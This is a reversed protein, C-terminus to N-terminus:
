AMSQTSTSAGELVPLTQSGPDGRGLSQWVSVPNWAVLIRQRRLCSLVQHCSQVPPCSQALAAEVPLPLFPWPHQCLSFETAVLYEGPCHSHGLFLDVRNPRSLFLCIGFEVPYDPSCVVAHLFPLQHEGLLSKKELLKWSLRVPSVVDEM